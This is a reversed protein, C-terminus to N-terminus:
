SSFDIALADRTDSNLIAMHGYHDHEISLIVQTNNDSFRTVQDNSLPFHIFQIASAKGSASTRDVDDEAVAKIKDDGITLFIHNEVGGMKNLFDTRKIPDDIEFMMTAVLERGNPILPNYAELEDTLQDDGGKEIFLMEHIQYLMTDYNEFYFTADPGVGVRRHAKILKIRDKSQQRQKSYDEISLIDDRTIETKFTM